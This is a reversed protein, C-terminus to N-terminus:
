PSHYYPAVTTYHLSGGPGPVGWGPYTVGVGCEGGRALTGSLSCQSMILSHKAARLLELLREVCLIM